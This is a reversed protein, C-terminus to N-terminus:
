WYFSVNAFNEEDSTPLDIQVRDEQCKLPLTHARPIERPIELMVTRGKPKTCLGLGSRSSQGCAKLDPKRSCRMALAYGIFVYPLSPCWPAGLAFLWFMDTRALQRPCTAKWLSLWFQAGLEEWSKRWGEDGAKLGLRVLQELFRADDWAISRRVMKPADGSSDAFDAAAQWIVAYGDLRADHWKKLVQPATSM